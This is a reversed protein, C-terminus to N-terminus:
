RTRLDKGFGDSSDTTTSLPPSPIKKRHPQPPTRLERAYCVQRRRLSDGHVEAGTMVTVIEGPFFTAVPTPIDHFDSFLKNNCPDSILFSRRVLQDRYM